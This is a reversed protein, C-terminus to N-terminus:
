RPAKPGRIANVAQDVSWGATSHATLRRFYRRRGFHRGEQGAIEWGSACYYGRQRRKGRGRRWHGWFKRGLQTKFNTLQEPPFFTTYPDGVADVAGAVAGYLIKQQDIPKDIYKPNLVDIAKWLLNYDVTTPADNQSIVQFSKPAFIFGKHGAQYGVYYSIVIILLVAIGKVFYGTKTVAQPQRHRSFEQIKRANRM